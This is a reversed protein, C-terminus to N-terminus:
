ISGYGRLVTIFSPIKVNECGAEQKSLVPIRHLLIMSWVGVKGALGILMLCHMQVHLYICM